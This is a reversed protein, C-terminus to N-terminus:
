RAPDEALRARDEAPLDLLADYTATQIAEQMAASEARLEILKRDLAARDPTPEASLRMIEGRIERVRAIHQDIAAALPELATAIKDVAEKPLRDDFRRLEFRVFREGSFVRHPKLWDVAFAGVLFGNLLLSASLVVPWRRRLFVAFASM